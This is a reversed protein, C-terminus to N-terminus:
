ACQDSPSADICAIQINNRVAREFARRDTASKIQGFRTLLDAIRRAGHVRVADMSDDALKNMRTATDATNRMGVIYAGAHVNDLPKPM